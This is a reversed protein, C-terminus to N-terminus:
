RPPDARWLQLSLMGFEAYPDDYFGMEKALRESYVAGAKPM